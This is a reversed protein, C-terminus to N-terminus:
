FDCRVAPSGGCYITEEKIEDLPECCVPTCPSCPLCVLSAIAGFFRGTYWGAKAGVKFAEEELRIAGRPTVCCCALVAFPLCTAVGTAGLSGQGIIGGLKASGSTSTKVKDGCGKKDNSGLLPTNGHSAM